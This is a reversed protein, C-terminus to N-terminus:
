EVGIIFMGDHHQKITLDCPMRKDFLGKVFELDSEEYHKLGMEEFREYEKADPWSFYQGDASQDKERKVGDDEVLGTLKMVEKFFMNMGGVQLQLRHWFLSSEPDIKVNHEDLFKGTDIGTDVEHMTMTFNEIQDMMCRMDVHLGKYDPLSGPHMNLVGHKPIKLVPAKFIQQFRASYIIDPKMDRLMDLYMSHNVTKKLVTVQIGRSELEKFTSFAPVDGVDRNNLNDDDNSDLGGIYGAAENGDDTFRDGFWHVYEHPGFKDVAMKAGESKPADHGLLISLKMNKPTFFQDAMNAAILGKIDKGTCIVVHFQNKVCKDFSFSEDVLRSM